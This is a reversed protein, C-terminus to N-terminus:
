ARSSAQRWRTCRGVRTAKASPAATTSWPCEHERAGVCGAACLARPDACAAAADTSYQRECQPRAAPLRAIGTVGAGGAVARHRLSSGVTASRANGPTRAFSCHSRSSPVIEQIQRPGQGDRALAALTRGIQGAFAKKEYAGLPVGSMSAEAGEIALEAARKSPRAALDSAENRVGSIIAHCFSAVQVDAKDDALGARGKADFLRDFNEEPRRRIESSEIDHNPVTAFGASVCQRQTVVLEGVCSGNM